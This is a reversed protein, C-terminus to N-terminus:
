IKTKKINIKEDLSASLSKALSDSSIAKILRQAKDELTGDGIIDLIESSYLTMHPSNASLSILALEKNNAYKNDIKKLARTDNKVAAKIVTFDDKLRDSIDLFSFINKSVALIAIEKDDKFHEPIFRIFLADKEVLFLALERSNKIEDSLQIYLTIDQKIALKAKEIDTIQRTNYQDWNKKNKM